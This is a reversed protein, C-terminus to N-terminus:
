GRTFMCFGMKHSELGNIVPPPVVKYSSANSKGKQIIKCFYGMNGCTEVKWMEM